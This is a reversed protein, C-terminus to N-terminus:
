TYTTFLTCTTFLKGWDGLTLQFLVFVVGEADERRQLQKCRSKGKSSWGPWGLTPRSLLCVVHFNWIPQQPQVRQYVLMAISFCWKEIPFEDELPGNEM